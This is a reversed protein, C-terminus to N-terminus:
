NLVVYATGGITIVVYDYNPYKSWELMKDAASREAAMNTNNWKILLEPKTKSFHNNDDQAKEDRYM